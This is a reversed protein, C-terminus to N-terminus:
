KKHHSDFQLNWPQRLRQVRFITSQISTSGILRLRFITHNQLALASLKYMKRVSSWRKRLFPLKLPINPPSLNSPHQRNDIRLIIVNYNKFLKHKSPKSNLPSINIFILMKQCCFLSHSIYLSVSFIYCWKQMLKVLESRVSEMSPREKQKKKM